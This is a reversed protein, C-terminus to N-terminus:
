KLDINICQSICVPLKQMGMWSHFHDFCWNAVSAHICTITHFHTNICKQARKCFSKSEIKRKYPSLDRLPYISWYYNKKYLDGVQFHPELSCPSQFPSIQVESNGTKICDTVTHVFLLICIWNTGISTWHHHHWMGVWLLNNQLHHFSM